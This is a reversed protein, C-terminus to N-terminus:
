FLLQQSLRKAAIECYRESIEIGVAKRGELKAAVLTTGSGAFPDLITGGANCGIIAALLLVPKQTPHLENQTRQAHIVDPIRKIFRHGDKPYFLCAEWQRGHEHELDGMSWNNKVWAIVSKPKPMEPINDWRCFIYAANQSQQICDVLFGVPVSNDGTIKEHKKARYNSQYNMGYPPDTLLLDFKGLLPLLERCDANYLTVADDQYYPKPLTVDLEKRDRASVKAVM